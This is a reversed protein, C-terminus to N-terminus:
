VQIADSAGLVAGSVDLAEVAVFPGATEVAIETEFGSRPASGAEMLNDASPGALARWTAVDTAGNWSAYVTVADGAGREAAVAPPEAPQGTWPFRYARYSTGGNPFRGNFILDGAETFESFVPAAGWGIFVNGNPLMQMNARSVSLIGTPHIYERVLTATMAEEDLRLLLGRSDVTADDEFDGSHNDFLSLQGDGRWRADHQLGFSTGEGMEFDSKSGNLRWAVAGTARGIKYITSTHRSSVYFDGNEDVDISNLHFYDFATDPHSPVTFFSEDIAVDDLSHWEFLVRGTEIELEQVINDLAVGYRPGGVASLDWVVPHYTSLVATGTPTLLLEHLDGGTYGNGIQFRAVPQYTSDLVIYHGFRYGIPGNGEVFTIVPEGLYEQVKVDYRSDLPNPAPAFWIYDGENDLIAAGSQGGNVNSGLFIFGDATGTAPTTISMVPPLLDPRSRFARPAVEPDNREIESPSETIEAPVSVGFSLAGAATGPLPVEATVTVQEGPEFRADPVFSAGNGDAHPMMLGSRGGSHSGIVTVLGLEDITVGRFSIETHPAATWSDHRPFTTIGAAQKRAALSTSTVGPSIGAAVAVVGAGAARLVARRSVQGIGDSSRRTEGAQSM